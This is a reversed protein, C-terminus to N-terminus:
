LARVVIWTERWQNTVPDLVRLTHKGEQLTATAQGDHTQCDLTPCEWHPADCGKVRLDLLRNSPPLDPDLVYITGPM